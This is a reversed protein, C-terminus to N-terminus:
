GYVRVLLIGQRDHILVGSRFGQQVYLGVLAPPGLVVARNLPVEIREFTKLGFPVFVDSRGQPLLVAKPKIPLSSWFNADISGWTPADLHRAQAAEVLVDVIRSDEDVGMGKWDFVPVLTHPIGQVREVGRLGAVHGFSMAPQVNCFTDRGIEFRVPELFSAFKSKNM